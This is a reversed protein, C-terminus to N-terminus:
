SGLYQWWWLLRAHNSVRISRALVQTNKWNRGRFISGAAPGLLSPHYDPYTALLAKQVQDANVVRNPSQMALKIAMDRALQLWGSRNSAALHMGQIKAAEALNSDFQTRSDPNPVM